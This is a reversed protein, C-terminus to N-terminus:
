QPRVGYLVTLAQPFRRAWSAATHNGDPEVVLTVEPRNLYAARINGALAEVMRAFGANATAFPVRLQVAFKDGGPVALETSGVGISVRDPGRALFATDRLM